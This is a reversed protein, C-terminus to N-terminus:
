PAIEDGDLDISLKRAVGPRRQLLDVVAAAILKNRDSASLANVAALLDADSRPRRKPAQVALKNSADYTFPGDTTPMALLEVDNAYLSEGYRIDTLAGANLRGWIM